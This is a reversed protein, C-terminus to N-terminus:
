CSGVVDCNDRCSYLPSLDGFAFVSADYDTSFGSTTDYIGPLISNGAGSTLAQVDHSTWEQGDGSVMLHTPSSAVFIGPSGDPGEVNANFVVSEFGTVDGPIPVWSYTFADASTLFYPCDDSVAVMQQTGDNRTGSVIDMWNCTVATTTANETPPGSPIETDPHLLRPTIIEWTAGDVSKVAIDTNGVLGFYIGLDCEPGDFCDGGINVHEFFNVCNLSGGELDLGVSGLSFTAGDDSSVALKGEASVAVYTSQNKSYHVDTWGTVATDSTTSPDVSVLTLDAYSTSYLNNNTAIVISGTDGNADMSFQSAGADPTFVLLEDSTSCDTGRNLWASALGVLSLDGASSSGMYQDMLVYAFYDTGVPSDFTVM